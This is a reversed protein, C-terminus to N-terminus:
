NILQSSFIASIISSVQLQVFVARSHISRRSNVSDILLLIGSILCCYLGDENGNNIICLFSCHIFLLLIFSTHPVTLCCSSARIVARLGLSVLFCGSLEFRRRPNDHKIRPQWCSIDSISIPWREHGVVWTVWWVTSGHGVHGMVWSGHGNYM